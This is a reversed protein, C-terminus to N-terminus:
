QPRVVGASAVFIHTPGTGSVRLYYQGAPLADAEIRQLVDVGERERTQEWRAEGEAIQEAGEGLLSFHLGASTPAWFELSLDGDAPHSLLLYDTFFRRTELDELAEALLRPSFPFVVPGEPFDFPILKGPDYLPKPFHKIATAGFYRFGLAYLNRATLDKVSFTIKGDPFLQHPCEVRLQLGQTSAVKKSGAYADLAFSRIVDPTVTITLAGQTWGQTLRSDNASLCEPGGLASKDLEITFWDIDGPYDHNLDSVITSTLLNGPMPDPLAAADSAHDNRLEGPPSEDDFRDPPIRSLKADLELTYCNMSSGHDGRVLAVSSGPKVNKLLSTRTVGRPNPFPAYAMSTEGERLFELRLENRPFVLERHALELVLDVYDLNRIQYYDRDGPTITYPGIKVRSSALFTPGFHTATARTQNGGTMVPPLKRGARKAVEWVAEFANIVPIPGYPVSSGSSATKRLIQVVESETLTDDLALMMAVVGSVYPASVSTGELKRYGRPDYGNHIVYPAYIDVATGHNSSPHLAATQTKLSPAKWFDVGGVCLVGPAVCPFVKYGVSTGDNGAGVVLVVGANVISRVKSRLHNYGEFFGFVRCLYNCYVGASLNIVDPSFILAAVLANGATWMSYGDGESARIAIPAAVTGGTGAVGFQNDVAAAAIQIVGAGHWPLRGTARGRVDYDKDAYDYQDVTAPVDANFEFGTDVVALKVTRTPYMIDLFQWAQHVPLYWRNVWEYTFANAYGGGGLPQEKTENLVCGWGNLGGVLNPTLDFEGRARERALLAFLRVAEESSFRVHGESGLETMVETFTDIEVRDLDVQVLYFPEHDLAEFEERWEQPADPPFLDDFTGDGLIRGGYTDLFVELTALEPAHLIVEDVVFRDESGDPGVAAALRRTQDVRRERLTAPVPTLDSDITYRFGTSPGGSPQPVAGAAHASGAALVFTTALLAVPRRGIGVPRVVRAGIGSRIRSM